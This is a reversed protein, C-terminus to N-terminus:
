ADRDEVGNDALGALMEVVAPPDFVDLIVVLDGPQALGIAKRIAEKQEGCVTVVHSPVGSGILGEALVAALEDRRKQVPGVNCTFFKDFHGALATMADTATADSIRAGNMSM